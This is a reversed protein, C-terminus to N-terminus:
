SSMTTSRPKSRAGACDSGTALGRIARTHRGRRYFRVERFDHLPAKVTVRLIRRQRHADDIDAHPLEVFNASELVSDLSQTPRPLLADLTERDM